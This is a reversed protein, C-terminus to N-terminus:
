HKRRRVLFVAVLCALVGVAVAELPFGPIPPTVVQGINSYATYVPDHEIRYGAYKPFAVGYWVATGNFATAAHAYLDLPGTYVSQLHSSMAYAFVSFIDASFALQWAVLIVDTAKPQLVWNYAPLNSQLVTWPDTSENIQDYTGRVGIAFARYRGAADTTIGAVEWNTANTPTTTGPWVTYASTFVVVFHAAGIGIDKMYQQPDPISVGLVRLDKVQGIKYFTEATIQGTVTDVEIDYTVTLESLTVEMFPIALTAWFEPWSNASVVRAYLNKYSIGFQYHGASLRTANIAEVTFGGTTNGHNYGYPVLFWRNENTSPAGNHDTDNYAYLFALVAGVFIDKGQPTTFHLGFLQYPLTSLTGNQTDNLVGLSILFAQFTGVSESYNVYSAIFQVTTHPGVPRIVSANTWCEDAFSHGFIPVEDGSHWTAPPLANATAPSFCLLMAIGLFVASALKTSTNM